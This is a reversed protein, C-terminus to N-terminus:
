VRCGCTEVSRTSLLSGGVPTDVVIPLEVPDARLRRVDIQLPAVGVDTSGLTMEVRLSGPWAPEAERLVVRRTHDLGLPNRDQEGAGIALAGRAGCLVFVEQSRLAPVRVLIWRLEFPVPRLRREEAPTWQIEGCPWMERGFAGLISPRVQSATRGRAVDRTPLWLTRDGEKGAISTHAEDLTLGFRATLPSRGILDIQGSWPRFPLFMTNTPHMRQAGRRFEARRVWDRHVTPMLGCRVDAVITLLPYFSTLHRDRLWRATAAGGIALLTTSAVGLFRAPGARDLFQLLREECGPGEWAARECLRHLMAGVGVLEAGEIGCTASYRNM